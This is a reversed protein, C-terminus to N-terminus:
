ASMSATTNVSSEAIQTLLRDTEGEEDLTQQLARAADTLGLQQAFTRVSGYGAMEYHEVRQAAAILAADKVSPEGSASIMEAGESVLGKMALCTERKPECGIQGFIRELRQAHVKTQDLHNLFADKLRQSSAAGAMKPLADTLRNEADYLDELQNIFLDKLNNFELNGFIGM